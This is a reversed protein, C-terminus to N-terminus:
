EAALVPLAKEKRYANDKGIAKQFAEETMWEVHGDMFLVNRGQHSHNVLKDYAMIMLEGQQQWKLDMARYVYSDKARVAPCMLGRPAMECAEILIDLNPPFQDEYDNAYIVLAKGLGKLNTQCVRERMQERANILWPGVLQNMLTDAKETDIELVLRNGQQHFVIQKVAQNLEPLCRQLEPQQAVFALAAQVWAQLMEAQKEDQAMVTMRAGLAPPGEVGLALWTLSQALLPSLQAEGTLPLSPTMEALVRRQDANPVVVLRLSTDGCAQLAWDLGAPRAPTMALLQKVSSELGVLILTDTAHVHVKSRGVQIDKATDQIHQQLDSRLSPKPVPVAAVFNPLDLMNFILYFDQGGAARFTKTWKGIQGWFADFNKREREMREAGGYETMTKEIRAVLADLNLSTVDLRVLAITQDNLCPTLANLNEQSPQGAQLPLFMVSALLSVFVKRKMSLCKM